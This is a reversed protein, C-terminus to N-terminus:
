ATAEGASGWGSTPNGGTAERYKAVVTRRYEEQPAPLCLRM